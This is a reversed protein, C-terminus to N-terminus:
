ILGKAVSILAHHLSHASARPGLVRVTQAEVFLVFCGLQHLTTRRADGLTMQRIPVPCLREFLDATGAGSVDFCVWAGTQDTVSVTDQLLVQMQQALNEHSALPAMLLWQDPGTWIASVPDSLHAHGPGPAAGIKAALAATVAAEHGRRAALSALALEDNEVITVAGIIDRSPATGGLATTPILNHM